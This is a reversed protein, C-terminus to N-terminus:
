HSTSNEHITALRNAVFTNSTNRIYQLVCTSDTWFISRTVAIDLDQKLTKNLQVAGVAASLELRPVTMPKLHALRSKGMLFACHINDKSDVMRLYSVTGYALQSADAFDHPESYKLEEFNILKLCRNVAIGALSPLKGKWNEWGEREVEGIPDDWGLKERCLDQLLKKSPLVVPALFGLPDYVSSVLSLIGRRITPKDKLVGDFIFRDSEMDWQLGMARQIPLADKLLDLNLM